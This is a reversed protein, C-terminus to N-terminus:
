TRNHTLERERQNEDIEPEGDVGGGERAGEGGVKWSDGAIWQLAPAGPRSAIDAATVLWASLSAVFDLM